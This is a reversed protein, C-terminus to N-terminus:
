GQVHTPCELVSRYVEQLRKAVVDRGFRALCDNRIEYPSYQSHNTLLESMAQGYKQPNQENVLLGNRENVISDPGSGAIAIVPRGCALAEILVVGFTEYKSTSVLADCRRMEELINERDLLGLFKVQNVIGLKQTLADLAQRKPGHGAIRLSVNPNNKFTRAFSELLLEFNKHSILNGVALFQFGSKQWNSGEKDLQLDEFKKHLINPIYEWPIISSKGLIPEISKPLAPSVMIRKNASQYASRLFEKQWNNIRGTAFLSSHETIVTPIKHSKKLESALIGAYLVNHAHLVDPLGHEESYLRFLKVGIKVWEYMSLYPVRSTIWSFGEYSIVPIENEIRTLIKGSPTKMGSFLHRLTRPAPAIIGIKDGLNKLAVAQDRQFIGSLPSDPSLYRFPPIILIHMLIM